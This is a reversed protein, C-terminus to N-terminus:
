GPARAPLRHNRDWAIGAPEADFTGLVDEENLFAHGAPYHDIEPKRITVGLIEENLRAARSRRIRTPARQTFSSSKSGPMRALLRALWYCRQIEPM